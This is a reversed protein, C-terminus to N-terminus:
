PLAVKGRGEAKALELWLRVHDAVARIRADGNARDREWERYQAARRTTVPGMIQRVTPVGPRGTLRKGTQRM